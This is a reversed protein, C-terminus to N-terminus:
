MQRKFRKHRTNSHQGQFHSREGPQNFPSFINLAEEAPGPNNEEPIKQDTLHM